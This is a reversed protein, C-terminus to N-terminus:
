IPVGFTPEDDGDAEERWRDIEDAIRAASGALADLARHRERAPAEARRQVDRVGAYLAFVDIRLREIFANIDEHMLPAPPAPASNRLLIIRLNGRSNRVFERPRIAEQATTDM